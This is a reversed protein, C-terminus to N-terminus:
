TRLSGNWAAEPRDTSGKEPMHVHGALCHILANM